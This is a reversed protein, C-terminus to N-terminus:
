RGPIKFQAPDNSAPALPVPPAPPTNQQILNGLQTDVSQNTPAPPVDPTNPLPPLQSFDSPMPPLPPMPPLSGTTSQEAAPPPTSSLADEIASRADQHSSHLQELDALTQTPAPAAPQAPTAAPQPSSLPAIDAAHMTPADGAFPDVTAPEAKDGGDKRENYSNVPSTSEQNEPLPPSNHSLITKNRDGAEERRKDIAAQESTANLTGGFSPEYEEGQTPEVQPLSMDKEPAKPTTAAEDLEAQANQLDKQLDAVSPTQGAGTTDALVKALEEEKAENALPQRATEIFPSEEPEAQELERAQHERLSEEAQKAAAAQNDRRTQDAVADVDGRKEHSITMTGDAAQRDKVAEAQESQAQPEPKKSSKSSKKAERDIKSSKGDQLATSGDHQIGSAAEEAQEAEELKMAILQQNAGTSMLQAAMSMAQSSTNQNSFRDTAAVIGTLFATSAQEDLLSKGSRLKDALSALLESYSSAGNEHWQLSGLQTTEKGISISAVTADHLIRGHDSLAKDLDENNDVGIAIVMEVNYDGQSFDLDNDSITTRYPTIFIKVMDGDVKYRLHDAKEKDLAIIFDRLSDVTNEFTKTPNLFNIAPPVEGSFVATAHKGLKNIMLTTGLAAALADVSPNRSVTVLINDVEKLEDVIQQEINKDSM